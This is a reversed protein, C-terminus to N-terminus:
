TSDPTDPQTGDQSPASDHAFRVDEVDEDEREYNPSYFIENKIYTIVGSEHETIDSNHLIYDAAKLNNLMASKDSVDGLVINIRGDYEAEYGKDGYRLRTFKMGIEHGASYIQEFCELYKAADGQICGDVSSNKFDIGELVPVGKKEAVSKTSVAEADYTLSIFIDSTSVVASNTVTELIKGKTSITAWCNAAVEAVGLIEAETVNVVITAPFERKIKCSEIYPLKQTITRECGEADVFLINDGKTFSCMDIVQNASYPSEGKVEINKVNFFIGVYLAILGVLTAMLIVSNFVVTRRRNRQRVRRHAARMPVVGKAKGSKVVKARNKKGSAGRSKVAMEAVSKSEADSGQSTKAKHRGGRSYKAAAESQSKKKRLAGSKERKELEEPHKIYYKEVVSSYFDSNNLARSYEDQAYEAVPERQAQRPMKAADRANRKKASSGSKKYSSSKTAAKSPNKKVPQASKNESKKARQRSSAAPSTVASPKRKAAPLRSEQSSRESSARDSAYAGRETSGRSAYEALNGPRVLKLDAYNRKSKNSVAGAYKSMDPQPKRVADTSSIRRNNNGANRKKKSGM